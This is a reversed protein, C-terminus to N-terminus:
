DTERPNLSAIVITIIHIDRTAFKYFINTKNFRNNILFYDKIINQIEKKDPYILTFKNRTLDYIIDNM